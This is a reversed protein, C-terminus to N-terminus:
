TTPLTVDGDRTPPVGLAKRDVHRHGAGERLPIESKLAWCVAVSQSLVPLVVGTENPRGVKETGYNQLGRPAVALLCHGKKTLEEAKSGALLVSLETNVSAPSPSPYGTVHLGTACAM